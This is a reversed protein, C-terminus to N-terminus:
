YSKRRSKKSEPVNETNELDIRARKTKNSKNITPSKPLWLKEQVNSIIKENLEREGTAANFEGFLAKLDPVETGSKQLQCFNLYSKYYKQQGVIEDNLDDWLKTMWIKFRDLSNFKISSISDKLFAVNKPIAPHSLKVENTSADKEIHINENAVEKVKKKQPPSIIKAKEQLSSLLTQIEGISADIKDDAMSKYEELELLESQFEDLLIVYNELKIELKTLPDIILTCYQKCAEEITIEKRAFKQVIKHIIEQRHTEIQKDVGLNVLIPAETTANITEDTLTGTLMSNPKNKNTPWIKDFEKSICDIITKEDQNLAIAKVIIDIIARIQEDSFKKSKLMRSKLPSIQFNITKEDKQMWDKFDEFIEKALTEQFDGIDFGSLAHPHAAHYKYNGYNSGQGVQLAAPKVSMKIERDAKGDSRKAIGYHGLLMLAFTQIRMFAHYKITEEDCGGHMKYKEDQTISAARNSDIHQRTYRPTKSSVPAINTRERLIRDSLSNTKNDTVKKKEINEDKSKLFVELNEDNVDINEGDAGYMLHTGHIDTYVDMENSSDELSNEGLTVGIDRYLDLPAPYFSHSMNYNTLM